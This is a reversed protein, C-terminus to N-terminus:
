CGAICLNLGTAPNTICDDLAARGTNTLVSGPEVCAHIAVGDNGAAKICARTAANVADKCVRLSDKCVTDACHQDAASNCVGVCVPLDGACTTRDNDRTTVCTTICAQRNVPDAPFTALCINRCGRFDSNAMSRCVMASGFCSTTCHCAEAAPVRSALLFFSSVLAFVATRM